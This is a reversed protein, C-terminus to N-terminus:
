RWDTPEVIQIKFKQHLDIGNNVMLPLIKLSQENICKKLFLTFIKICFYFCRVNIFTDVFLDSLVQVKTSKFITKWLDKKDFEEVTYFLLPLTNQYTNFMILTDKNILKPHEDIFYKCVPDMYIGNLSNARQEDTAEIESLVGVRQAWILDNDMLSMYQIRKVFEEREKEEINLSFTYRRIEMEINAASLRM